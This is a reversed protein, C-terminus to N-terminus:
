FWVDDCDFLAVFLLDTVEKAFDFYAMKASNPTYLDAATNLIDTIADKFFDPNTQLMHRCGDRIFENFVDFYRSECIMVAIDTAPPLSDQDQVAQSERALIIMAEMTTM